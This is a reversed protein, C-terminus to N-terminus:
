FEQMSFSHRWTSTEARKERNTAWDQTGAQAGSDEM